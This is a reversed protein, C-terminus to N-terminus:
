GSLGGRTTGRSLSDQAGVMLAGIGGARFIRQHRLQPDLPELPEPEAEEMQECRADDAASDGSLDAVRELLIPVAGITRGADLGALLLLGDLVMARPLSVGRFALSLPTMGVPDDLFVFLNGEGPMMWGSFGLGAGHMRVELLGNAARRIMGYDHFLKGSMLLSPRSTRWFGEYPSGRRVTEARARAAFGGLVANTDADDSRAPGLDSVGFRAAFDRPDAFWDALRFDPHSAAILGALRALNHESPHVAGSLWRGILSKDVALAQALAVRSLSTIRM